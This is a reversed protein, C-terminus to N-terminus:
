LADNFVFTNKILFNIFRSRPIIRIQQFVICMRYYIANGRSKEDSLITLGYGSGTLMMNKLEKFNSAAEKLHIENEKWENKRVSRDSYVQIYRNFQKLIIMTLIIYKCMGMYTCISTHNYFISYNVSFFFSILSNECYRREAVIFALIIPDFSGISKM